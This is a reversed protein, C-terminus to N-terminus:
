VLWRQNAADDQGGAAPVHRQNGLQQRQALSSRQTYALQHPLVLRGRRPPASSSVVFGSPTREPAHSFAFHAFISCGEHGHVSRGDRSYVAVRRYGERLGAVPLTNFGLLQGGADVIQINLLALEPARLPFTAREDWFDNKKNGNVKGENYFTDGEPGGRGGGVTGGRGNRNNGHGSMNNHTSFSSCDAPVGRLELRVSTVGGKDRRRKESKSRSGRGKEKSGQPLYQASIITVSLVFGAPADFPGDVPSWSADVPSWSTSRDKELGEKELLCRPQLVYGTSRNRKFMGFNLQWGLDHTQTNLSAMQVGLTWAMTPNYNSSDIRYGAPYVRSINRQLLEVFVSTAGEAGQWALKTLKTENFSTM